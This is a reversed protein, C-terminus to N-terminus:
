AFKEMRFPTAKKPEIGRAISYRTKAPRKQKVMKRDKPFFPKAPKAKGAKNTAKTPDRYVISLTKGLPCNVGNWINTGVVAVSAARTRPQIPHVVESTICFPMGVKCAVPGNPVALNAIAQGQAPM